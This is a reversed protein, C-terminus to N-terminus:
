EDDKEKRKKVIEAIKASTVKPITRKGVRDQHFGCMGGYQCGKCADHKSLKVPSPSINGTRLEQTAGKSVYLAYDLFDTFVAGDIVSGARNKELAADVGPRPPDVLIFSIREQTQSLGTSHSRPLAVM